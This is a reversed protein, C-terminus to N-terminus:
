FIAAAEQICWEDGEKLLKFDTNFDVEIEMDQKDQKAIMVVTGTTHIVATTGTIEKEEFQLNRFSLEKIGDFDSSKVQLAAGKCYSKQIADVDQKSMRGLYDKVTGKPGGTGCASLTIALILVM